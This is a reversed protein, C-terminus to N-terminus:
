PAPATKLRYDYYLSRAKGDFPSILGSDWGEKSGTWAYYYFRKIRNDSAVLDTLLFGLDNRVAAPSRRTDGPAKQYVGGAETIWIQPQVGADTNPLHDAFRRFRDLDKAQGVFYTHFAWIAPRRGQLADKYAKFYLPGFSPGDVFEGAGPTCLPLQLDKDATRTNACAANLNRWYYAAVRAGQLRDPDSKQPCGSPLPDPSSFWPSSLPQDPHNPENWAVYTFVSRFEDRFARVAAEYEKISPRICYESENQCHEFSITKHGPAKAVWERLAALAAENNPDNKAGCATTQRSRLVVDWPVTRRFKTVTLKALRSDSFAEPRQTALGWGAGDRRLNPSPVPVPPAVLTTRPTPAPEM